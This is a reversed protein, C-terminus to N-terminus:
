YARSMGILAKPPEDGYRVRWEAALKAVADQDDRAELGNLSLRRPPELVGGVATGASGGIDFRRV